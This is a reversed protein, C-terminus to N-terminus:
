NNNHMLYNSVLINLATNRVYSKTHRTKLLIQYVLQKHLSDDSIAGAFSAICPVIFDKAREEYEKKTGLTNDVQDVLPQMLTEFREQNIFDHADYTFVRLFTLLIEKILEIKSAEDNFTIESM